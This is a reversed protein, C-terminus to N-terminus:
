EASLAITGLRRFVRSRLLEYRANTDPNAILYDRTSIYGKDALDVPAKTMIVSEPYQNGTLDYYGNSLKNYYHTERFAPDQEDTVIVRVIEGGFIDNLVLATPVCQGRAPNEVSWLQGNASTQDDWEAKIANSVQRLFTEAM